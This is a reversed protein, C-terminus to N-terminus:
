GWPLEAWVREPTLPGDVIRTCYRELLEIVAALERPSFVVHAAGGERFLLEYAELGRDALVILAVDPHDLAFRLQLDLMLALNEATVAIGVLAGPCESLQETCQMISRVERLVLRAPLGGHRLRAAWLGTSELVILTPRIPTITM